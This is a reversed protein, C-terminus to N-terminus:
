DYPLCGSFWHAEIRQFTPYPATNNASYLFGCSSLFFGYRQFFIVNNKDTKMFQTGQSNAWWLYDPVKLFRFYEISNEAQSLLVANTMTMKAVSQMQNKFLLYEIKTDQTEALFAFAFALGLISLRKLSEKFALICLLLHIVFAVLVLLHALPRMIMLPNGFPLVIYLSSALIEFCLLLLVILYPNSQKRM